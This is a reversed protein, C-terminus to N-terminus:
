AIHFERLTPPWLINYEGGTTERFAAKFAVVSQDDLIKKSENFTSKPDDTLIFINSEGSGLDHGDIQARGRLKEILINEIKILKDYGVNEESFQLVLQFKM